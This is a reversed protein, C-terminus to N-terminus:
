LGQTLSYICFMECGCINVQQQKGNTESSEEGGEKKSDEIAREIYDAVKIRTPKDVYLKDLSMVKKTCNPCVFERELLHTQICEECYSTNCCPTKVADRFLKNDIPCALSSDSPVKERVDAATLGKPRAVQKQWSVRFPPTAQIYADIFSSCM